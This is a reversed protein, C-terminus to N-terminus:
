TLIHLLLFFFFFFNKSALLSHCSFSPLTCFSLLRPPSPLAGPFGTWSLDALLPFHDEELQFHSSNEETGSVFTNGRLGKIM